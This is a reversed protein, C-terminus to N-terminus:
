LNAIEEPSYYYLQQTNNYYNWYPYNEDNCQFRFNGGDQAMYDYPILNANPVCVVGYCAEVNDIKVDAFTLGNFSYLHISYFRGDPATYEVQQNPTSQISVEEM